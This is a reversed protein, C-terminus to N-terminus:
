RRQQQRRCGILGCNLSLDRSQLLSQAIGEQFDIRAVPEVADAHRQQADYMVQALVEEFEVGEQSRRDTMDPQRRLGSDLEDFRARAVCEDFARGFAQLFQGLGRFAALLFEGPCGLLLVAGVGLM